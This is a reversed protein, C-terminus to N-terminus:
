SKFEQWISTLDRNILSCLGNVESLYYGRLYSVEETALSPLNKSSYLVGSLNQRLKRPVLGKALKIVGSKVLLSNLTKNRPLSAANKKRSTDFEFEPSM